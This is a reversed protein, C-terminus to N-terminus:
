NPINGSARFQRETVLRRTWNDGMALFRRKECEPLQLLSLWQNVRARLISHKRALDAQTLGERRMEEELEM